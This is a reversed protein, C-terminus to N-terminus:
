MSEDSQDLDKSDEVQRKYISPDSQPGLYPRDEDMEERSWKQLEQSADEDQMYGVSPRQQSQFPDQLRLNLFQNM